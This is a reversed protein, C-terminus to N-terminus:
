LGFAPDKSNHKTFSFLSSMPFSWKQIVLFTTSFYLGEPEQDANQRQIELYELFITRIMWAKFNVKWIVKRPRQKNWARPM